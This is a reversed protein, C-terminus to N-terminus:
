KVENYKIVANVIRNRQSMSADSIIRYIQSKDLHKKDPYIAPNTLFDSNLLKMAPKNPTAVELEKSNFAANEASNIFGLFEIALEKRPSWEMVVFCDMWITTGEDPIVYAWLNSESLENLALQDGSYGLAIYMEGKDEKNKIYTLPNSYSLVMPAQHKLLSFADEFDAREETNINKYKYLLPAALTDISDALMVIHGQYRLEPELLNKWSSPPPIVKETNYIIGLSGWLYPMGFNGCSDKWRPEIDKLSSLRDPSLAIIKNNKGFLQTSVRDLVALDFAKGNGSGLVEDRSEDSDYFSLNVKHGTKVEWKKILEESIYEEWIYVNLEDAFAIIPAIVLMFALLVKNM